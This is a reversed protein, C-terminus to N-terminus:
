INCQLIVNTLSYLDNKFVLKELSLITLIVFVFIQLYAIILAYEYKSNEKKGQQLLKNTYNCERM